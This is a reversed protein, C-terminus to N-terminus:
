STYRTYRREMFSKVTKLDQKIEGSLILNFTFSEHPGLKKLALM